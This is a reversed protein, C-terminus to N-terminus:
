LIGRNFDLSNAVFEITNKKWDLLISDAIQRTYISNARKNFAEIIKIASEDIIKRSKSGLSAFDNVFRFGISFFKHGEEGKELSKLAALVDGDSVSTFFGMPMFYEESIAIATEVSILYYFVGLLIKSEVYGCNGNLIHDINELFVLREKSTLKRLHRM